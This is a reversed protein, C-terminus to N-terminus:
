RINEEEIRVSDNEGYTFYNKVGDRIMNNSLSMVEYDDIRLKEFEKITYNFADQLKEFVEVEVGFHRDKWILVFM